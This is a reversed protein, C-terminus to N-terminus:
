TTTMCCVETQFYYNFGHKNTACFWLPCSNRSLPLVFYHIVTSTRLSLMRSRFESNIKPNETHKLVAIDCSELYIRMHRTCEIAWYYLWRKKWPTAYNACSRLIQPPTHLAREVCLELRFAMRSAVINASDTFLVACVMSCPVLSLHGAIRQPPWMESAHLADNLFCLSVCSSPPLPMYGRVFWCPWWDDITDEM